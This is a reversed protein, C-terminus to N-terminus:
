VEILYFPGLDTVSCNTFGCKQALVQIEEPSFRIAMPPGFSTEEKKIEIIALKGEPKILPRLQNFLATIDIKKLSHLVTAILCVDVSNNKFKLKDENLNGVIAQINKINQKKIEENLEEIADKQRDIAYIIGVDEIIKSAHLSYKGIGCGLDLLTQGKKLALTEFVLKSDIIDFSNPKKGHKKTQEVEQKFHKEHEDIKENKM